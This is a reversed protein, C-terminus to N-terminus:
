IRSFFFNSFIGKKSRSHALSTFWIFPCLIFCTWFWGLKVGYQNFINDKQVFYFNNPPPYLASFVSLVFIACLYFLAKKEANLFLYKRAVQVGIGLFIDLAEMFCSGQMM